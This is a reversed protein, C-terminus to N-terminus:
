YKQGVRTDKVSTKREQLCAVCGSYLHKMVMPLILGAALHEM